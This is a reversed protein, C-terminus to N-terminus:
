SELGGKNLSYQPYFRTIAGEMYLTALLAPAGHGPQQNTLAPGAAHEMGSVGTLFVFRPFESESEHSSILHNTHSYAFNLGPCTGDYQPLAGTDSCGASSTMRRLGTTAM